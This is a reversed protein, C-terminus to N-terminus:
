AQRELAKLPAFAPAVMLTRGLVPARAETKALERTATGMLPGFFERAFAGVVKESGAEM